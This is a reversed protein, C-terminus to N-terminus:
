NKEEEEMEEKGGEGGEAELQMPLIVTLLTQFGNEM